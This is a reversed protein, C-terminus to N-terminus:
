DKILVIRSSHVLYTKGDIVVQIQDGDAFDRWSDVKGEVIEGNPLEIIARNFTYTLDIIQKNGCGGFLLVAGFLAALLMTKWKM